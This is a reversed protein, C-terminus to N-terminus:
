ERTASVYLFKVPMTSQNLWYHLNEANFFISDFPNLIIEEENLLVTLTGELVYLFEQGMHSFNNGQNEGPNLIVVIPLFLPNEMKGTLDRYIFANDISCKMDLTNRMILSEQEQNRESFFVGPSVNMADSIKKLSELTASTKANELQSLFSISLGTKESVEKLTFNKSKRLLKIRHGLEEKM